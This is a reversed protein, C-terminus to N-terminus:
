TSLIKEGFLSTDVGEKSGSELKTKIKDNLEKFDSLERGRSWEIYHLTKDMLGNMNRDTIEKFIHYPEEETPPDQMRVKWVKDKKKWEIIFHLGHLISKYYSLRNLKEELQM